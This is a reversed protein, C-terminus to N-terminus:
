RVLIKETKNDSKRIYIGPVLKDAEIEVGQLNYYRYNDDAEDASVTDIASTKSQVDVIFYEIINLTNPDALVHYYEGDELTEPIIASYTFIENSNPAITKSLAGYNFVIYLQNNSLSCIYLGMDLQKPQSYTSKMEVEVTSVKGPVLTQPDAEVGILKFEGKVTVEVEIYGEISGNEAFVLYYSGPAINPVTGSFTMVAESKAPISVSSSGLEASITFNNNNNLKCLYADLTLEVKKNFTNSVTLYGEFEQGIIFGDPCNWSLLSVAGPTEEIISIGTSAVEITLYQPMDYCLKIARWEGSGVKYTPYVRYQGAAVTTPINVVYSMVGYYIPLNANVVNLSKIDTSAGTSINELRVGYTFTGDFCSYNYFGGNTDDKTKVTLRRASTEGAIEYMCGIYPDPAVSGEQPRQVGIVAGQYYNFGGAGGGAGLADPDLASLAFYGDSTGSWGWNMHFMGRGDYGDCVFSHGGESGTGDYIVPGYNALNDYILEAWEETDYFDRRAYDAGVDYGFKKVLADRINESRAGSGGNAATNYQMGVSYGALQMLRAVANAEATTYSRLYSNRMNSWDITSVPSTLPQNNWTYSISQVQSQPWQHYNMVQAMSTAVCGTVTRVGNYTPCYKNYPSSQDWTTSLMPYIAPMSATATAQTSIQSKVVSGNIVLQSAYDIEKAYQELWWKLQPPMNQPDFESSESYGLLPIAVDDASVFLTGAQNCFVYYAPDGGNDNGTMVLEPSQIKKGLIPAIKASGSVRQLAQSPTLPAGHSSIILALSALLTIIKKM